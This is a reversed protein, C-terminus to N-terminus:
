YGKKVGVEQNIISSTKAMMGMNKSGGVYKPSRFQLVKDKIETSSSLVTQTLISKHKWNPNVQTSPSSNSAKLSSNKSM